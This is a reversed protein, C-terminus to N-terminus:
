DISYRLFLARTEIGQMAYILYSPECRCNEVKSTSALFDPLELDNKALRAYMLGQRRNLPM